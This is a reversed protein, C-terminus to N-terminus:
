RGMLSKQHRKTRQQDPGVWVNCRCLPAQPVRLYCDLLPDLPVRAHFAGMYYDWLRVLQQCYVGDTLWSRGNVIWHHNQSDLPLSSLHSPSKTDTLIRSLLTRLTM